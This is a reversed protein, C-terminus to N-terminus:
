KPRGFLREGYTGKYRTVINATHRDWISQYLFADYRAKMVKRSTIIAPAGFKLIAGKCKTLTM